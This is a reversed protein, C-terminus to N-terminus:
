DSAITSNAFYATQAKNGPVYQSKPAAGIAPLM